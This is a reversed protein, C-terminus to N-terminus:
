DTWSPFSPGLTSKWLSKRKKIEWETIFPELIACIHCIDTLPLHEGFCGQVCINLPYLDPYLMQSCINPQCRLAGWLARLISIEWWKFNRVGQRGWIKEEIEDKEWDMLWRRAKMERSGAWYYDQCSEWHRTTGGVKGICGLPIGGAAGEARSM